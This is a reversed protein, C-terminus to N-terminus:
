PPRGIPLQAHQALYLAGIASRLLSDYSSSTRCGQGREGDFRPVGFPATIRNQSLSRAASSRVIIERCFGRHHLQLGPQWLVSYREQLSSNQRVVAPCSEFRDFVSSSHPRSSSLSLSRSQPLSLRFSAHRTCSSFLQLFRVLLPFTLYM